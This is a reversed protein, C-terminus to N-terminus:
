HISDTCQYQSHLRTHNRLAITTTKFQAPCVASPKSIPQNHVVHLTPNYQTSHMSSFTIGAKM